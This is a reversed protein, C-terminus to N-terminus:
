VENNDNEKIREFKPLMTGLVFLAYKKLNMQTSLSEEFGDEIGMFLEELKDNTIVENLNHALKNRQSNLKRLSGIIYDPLLPWDEDINNKAVIELKQKYTLNVSLIPEAKDGYVIRILEELIGETVLHIRLLIGLTDESEKYSSFLVGLHKYRAKTLGSLVKDM